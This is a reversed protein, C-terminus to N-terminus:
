GVLSKRFVAQQKITDYGLRETYFRHARQRIVNSRVRMEQCGASVAWAEAAAMLQEGIGQGRVGADVILGNIEAMGDVLLMRRAFVDVWGVVAGDVEAVFVKRLNDGTLTELRGEIDAATAPYGLQTALDALVAADEIRPTRIIVPEM